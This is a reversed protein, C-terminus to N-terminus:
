VTFKLHIATGKGITSIIQLDGRLEAARKRMNTLGNGRKENIIFGVGNDEIHLLVQNGIKRVEINVHTCKSYKLLNNIAEKYILYFNKRKAMPLKIDNLSEDFNLSMVYPGAGITESALTRMKIFINEFRENKSDIMWVIDSMAEQSIQTYEGIKNLVSALNESNRLASEKAVENFISISSLNSGIEDHLDRAINDRITQLKLRQKLRYTYLGWIAAATLIVYLLIAFWEKYWPNLIIISINLIEKNWVGNPHTCRVQFTYTGPQLNAYTTFRRTGCLIWDNDLGVMKYAYKIDENRFFTLASFQFSLYNEDYRLQYSSDLKQLQNNILFQTLYLKFPNTKIHMSDPHFVIFGNIGGFAMKGDKMKCAANTNFELFGAGDKESYIQFTELVPNFKNLGTNTGLWLNGDKDDLISYVANDSLGNEISFYKTQNKILNLHILGLGNTGVWINDYGFVVISRIDAEFLTRLSPQKSKFTTLSDNSINYLYLGNQSGVLIKNDDLKKLCFIIGSHHAFSDRKLKIEETCDSTVSQLSDNSKFISNNSTGYYINNGVTLSSRFVINEPKNAYKTNIISKKKSIPNYVLISRNTWNALWLDKNKVSVVDSYPQNSLLVEKLPKKNFNNESPNIDILYGGDLTAVVFQNKEFELISRVNKNTQSHYQISSGTFYTTLNSKIKECKILGKLPSLFWILGEQDDLINKCANTPLNSNQTHLHRRVGNSFNNLDVEILGAGDNEFWLNNDVGTVPQGFVINEHSLSSLQKKLNVNIVEGTTFDIKTATGSKSCFYLANGVRLKDYSKIREESNESPRSPYEEIKNKKRDFSLLKGTSSINIEDRNTIYIYSPMKININLPISHIKNDSLNIINLETESLVYLENNTLYVSSNMQKINSHRLSIKSLQHTKSDYKYIINKLVICTLHKNSGLFLIDRVNKFSLIKKFSGDKYNFQQFSNKFLFLLNGSSDEYSEVMQMTTFDNEKKPNFYYTNFDYGNFKSIGNESVLWLFGNPGKIIKSFSGPPLGNSNNYTTFHLNYPTQSM